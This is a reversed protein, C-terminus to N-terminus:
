EHGLGPGPELEMEARGAVLGASDRQRERGPDDEAGGRVVRPADRVDRAVDLVEVLFDQVILPGGRPVPVAPFRQDEVFLPDRDAALVLRARDRNALRAVARDEGVARRADQM